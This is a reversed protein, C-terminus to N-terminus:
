RCQDLFRFTGRTMTAFDSVGLYTGDVTGTAAAETRVGQGSQRFVCVLGDTETRSVSRNQFRTIPGISTWTASVGVERPATGSPVCEVGGPVESCVFPEVPVTAALTAGSIDRAAQFNLAETCGSEFSVPLGFEDTVDTNVCVQGGQRVPPSGNERFVSRGDFAFINVSECTTLGPSPSNDRCTQWFADASIGNQRYSFRHPGPGEQGLTPGVAFVLLAVLSLVVSLVHRM